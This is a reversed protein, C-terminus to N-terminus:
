KMCSRVEQGSCYFLCSICVITRFPAQGATHQTWYVNIKKYACSVDKVSATDQQSTPWYFCWGECREGKKFYIVWLVTLMQWGGTAEGEIKGVLFIVNQRTDALRRRYTNSSIEMHFLSVMKDAASREKQVRQWFQMKRVEDEGWFNRKRRKIELGARGETGENRRSAIRKGTMGSGRKRWQGEGRKGGENGGGKRRREGRMEGNNWGRGGRLGRM